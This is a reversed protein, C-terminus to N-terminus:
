ESKQSKLPVPIPASRSLAPTSADFHFGELELYVYEEDFLEHYLHFGIRSNEDAEHRIADKTSM